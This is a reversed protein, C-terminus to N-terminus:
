LLVIDGRPGMAVGGGGRFHVSRVGGRSSFRGSPVREASEHAPAQPPFWIPPVPSRLLEGLASQVQVDPLSALLARQPVLAGMSLLVMRAAAAPMGLMVLESQARLVDNNTGLAPRGLIEFLHAQLVLWEDLYGYGSGSVDALINRAIACYMLTTTISYRARLPAAGDLLIAVAVSILKPVERIRQLYAPAYERAALAREPPPLLAFASGNSVDGALGDLNPGLAEIRDIISQLAIFLPGLPPVRAAKPPPKPVQTPPPPAAPSPTPTPRTSQRTPRTSDLVVRLGAGFHAFGAWHRADSFPTDTGARRRLKREAEDFAPHGASKLAELYSDKSLTRLWLCAQRLAELSSTGKALESAFRLALGTAALRSVPWPSGIVARAGAALLGYQLGLSENIETQAAAGSDCSACFVLCEEALSVDAFLEAVSVRGFEFALGGHLADNPDFSGHACLHTVDGMSLVEALMDFSRPSSVEARGLPSFCADGGNTDVDGQKIGRVVSVAPNTMERDVELASLGATVSPAVAISAHELLPAGGGTLANIPLLNLMGTPVWLIRPREHGELAQDLVPSLVENATRLLPALANPAESRFTAAEMFTKLADFLAAVGAVELFRLGVRGFALFGLRDDTAISSLVLADVGAKHLEAIRGLVQNSRIPTGVRIAAGSPLRAAAADLEAHLRELDSVDSSRGLLRNATAAALRRYARAYSDWLVPDVDRPRRKRHPGMALGLVRFRGAEARAFAEDLNGAAVASWAADGYLAGWEAIRSVLGAPSKFQALESELIPLAAAFDKEAAVIDNLRLQAKGRVALSAAEIRRDGMRRALDVQVNAIDIVDGPSVNQENARLLRDLSGVATAVFSAVKPGLPVLEKALKVVEGTEARFAAMDGRKSHYAALSMTVQIRAAANASALRAKVEAMADAGGEQELPWLRMMAAAWAAFADDDVRRALARGGELVRWAEERRNQRELLAARTTALALAPKPPLNPLARVADLYLSPRDLIGLAEYRRALAVAVDARREADLAASGALAEGAELYGEAFLDPSRDLPLAYAGIVWGMAFISNRAGTRVAEVTMRALHEVLAPTASQPTVQRLVAAYSAEDVGIAM